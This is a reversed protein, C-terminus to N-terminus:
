ARLRRRLVGAAGLLGTGLLMLSSPEPTPVVTPTITAEFDLGMANDFDQDVGFILTHTGASLSFTPLGDVMECNPENQTCHGGSSETDGADNVEPTGGEGDLYVSTTDDALVDLSITSATAVSFTVSFTYTGDPPYNNSGPATDAYSVWVSSGIAPAWVGPNAGLSVVPSNAGIPTLTNLAANYGQYLTTSTNSDLTTASSAAAWLGCAATLLLLRTLHKMTVM